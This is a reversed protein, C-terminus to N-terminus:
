KMTAAGNAPEDGLEASASGNWDGAVRWDGGEIVVHWRGAPVQGALDALAGEYLGPASQRLTVVHDMGARTPHALRLKLAPPLPGAARLLVRVRGQAHALSAHVQLERARRERELVRNISLGQKYYDEAILGDAGRFAIFTTIVGAVIVAVPGLMLLWPWPERHWPAPRAALGAHPLPATTTSM